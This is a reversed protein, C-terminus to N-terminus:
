HGDLSALPHSPKTRISILAQHNTLLKFHRGFLYVRFKQLDFIVALCELEHTTYHSEAPNLVRSAFAIPRPQGTADKQQLVAGVSQASAITLLEVPRKPDYIALTTVTAIRSKLTQFADQEQQGWKWQNVKNSLALLPRAIEAYGKLTNIIGAYSCSATSTQCRHPLNFAPSQM